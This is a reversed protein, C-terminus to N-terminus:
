NSISQKRIAANRAATWIGDARPARLWFDADRL